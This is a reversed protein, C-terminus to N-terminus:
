RVLTFATGFRVVCAPARREADGGSLKSAHAEFLDVIGQSVM